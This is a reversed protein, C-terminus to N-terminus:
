WGWDLPEINYIDVFRYMVPNIIDIRAKPFYGVVRKILKWDSANAVLQVKEVSQNEGRFHLHEIDSLVLESVELSTLLSFSVDIKGLLFLKDIKGLSCENGKYEFKLSPFISPTWVKLNRIKKWQFVESPVKDIYEFFVELTDISQFSFQKIVREVFHKTKKFYEKPKEIEGYSGFSLSIRNYSNFQYVSDYEIDHPFVQITLNNKGLEKVSVQAFSFYTKFCVVLFILGIKKMNNSIIM